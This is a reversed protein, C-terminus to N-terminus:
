EKLAESVRKTGLHLAAAIRGIGEGAEHRARIERREDDTLERRPRGLKSKDILLYGDLAPKQQRGADPTDYHIWTKYDDGTSLIIYNYIASKALLIWTEEAAKAADPGMPTDNLKWLEAIRLWELEKHLGPRADALSAIDMREM